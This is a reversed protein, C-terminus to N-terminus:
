IVAKFDAEELTLCVKIIVVSGCGGLMETRESSVGNKTPLVKVAVFILTSWCNKVGELIIRYILNPAKIGNPSLNLDHRNERRGVSLNQGYFDRVVDM